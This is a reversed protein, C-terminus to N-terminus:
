RIHRSISHARGLAGGRVGGGEGGGKRSCFKLHIVMVLVLPLIYLQMSYM